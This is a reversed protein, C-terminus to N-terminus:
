EQGGAVPAPEATAGRSRRALRLIAHGGRRLEGFLGEPNQALALTAGLGFLIYQYQNLSPIKTNLWPFIGFLLGAAIAGGVHFIGGVVALTLYFLSFFPFYDLKNASELIMAYLSGGLGAVFASLSFIVVKYKLVDIGLSRTATESDRMAALIRGTRGSRLNVALLACALLIGLVVFYFASTGEAGEPRPLPVSAESGSIRPDTFFLEYAMFAFALTM